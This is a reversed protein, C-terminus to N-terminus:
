RHNSTFTWSGDWLDFMSDYRETISASVSGGPGSLTILPPANEADVTFEVSHLADLGVNQLSARVAVFNATTVLTNHYCDVESERIALGSLFGAITANTLAEEGTDLNILLEDEPPPSRLWDPPSTASPGQELYWREIEEFCMKYYKTVIITKRMDVLDIKM